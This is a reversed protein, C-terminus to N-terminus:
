FFTDPNFTMRNRDTEVLPETAAAELLVHSILEDGDDGGPLMWCTLEPRGDLSALAELRFEIASVKKGVSSDAPEHGPEHFYNILTLGRADWDRRETAPMAAYLRLAITLDALTVPIAEIRDVICCRPPM